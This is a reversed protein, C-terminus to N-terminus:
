GILNFANKILASDPLNNGGIVNSKFLPFTTGKMNTKLYATPANLRTIDTWNEIGGTKELLYNKDVYYEFISISTNLPAGIAILCNESFIKSEKREFNIEDLIHKLHEISWEFLIEPLQKRNCEDGFNFSDFSAWAKRIESNIYLPMLILDIYVIETKAFKKMRVLVAKSKDQLKTENTTDTDKFIMKKESDFEFLFNKIEDEPIKKYRIGGEVIQTYYSGGNLFFHSIQKNSKTYPPAEYVIIKNITNKIKVVEKLYQKYLKLITDRKQFLVSLSDLQDLFKSEIERKKKSSFGVLFEDKNPIDKGGSNIILSTNLKGTYLYSIVKLILDPISDIKNSYFFLQLIKLWREKESENELTVNRLDLFYTKAQTFSDDNFEFSISTEM